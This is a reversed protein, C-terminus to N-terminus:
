RKECKIGLGNNSIFWIQFTELMHISPAVSFIKIRHRTTRSFSPECVYCLRRKELSFLVLFKLFIYFYLAFM